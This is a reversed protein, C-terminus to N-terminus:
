AYRYSSKLFILLTSVVLLKQFRPKWDKVARVHLPFLAAWKIWDLHWSVWSLGNDHKWWRPWTGQIWHCYNHISINVAYVLFWVMRKRGAETQNCLTPYSYFCSPWVMLLTYQFWKIVEPFEYAFAFTSWLTCINFNQYKWTHFCTPEDTQPNITLYVM